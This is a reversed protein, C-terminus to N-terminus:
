DTLKHLNTAVQDAWRTRGPAACKIRVLAEDVAKQKQDLVASLRRREGAAKDERQSAEDYQARVADMEELAKILDAHM